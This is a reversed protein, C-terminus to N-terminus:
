SPAVPSPFHTSGTLALKQMAYGILVGPRVADQWQFVARRRVIERRLDDACVMEIRSAAPGWAFRTCEVQPQDDIEQWRLLAYGAKPAPTVPEAVINVLLVLAEPTGDALLVALTLQLADGPILAPRQLNVATEGDSQLESLPITV